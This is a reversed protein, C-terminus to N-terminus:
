PKKLVPLRVPPVRGSMGFRVLDKRPVLFVDHVTCRRRGHAPDTPGFPEVWADYSRLEDDPNTWRKVLKPHGFALTVLKPLSRAIRNHCLKMVLETTPTMLRGDDRYVHGLPTIEYRAWDPHKPVTPVPVRNNDSVDITYAASSPRRVKRPM